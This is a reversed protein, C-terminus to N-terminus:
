SAIIPMRRNRRGVHKNGFIKAFWGNKKEVFFYGSTLGIVIGSGFGMAVARWGFEFVSDSGESDEKGPTTPIEGEFQNRSLDIAVLFEQIKEFYTETGKNNIVMSLSFTYPWLSLGVLFSMSVELYKLQEAGYTKMSNWKRFYESPLKGTFSNDSLDVIQLMPFEEGSAKPGQLPGWFRNSGLILVRLNTLFGLWHPFIDNIHNGRLNLYELMTCNVLSKPVKGSLQNQSFDIMRLNCAELFTQPIEGHFKNNELSLFLPSNKMNGLCQPIKGSLDNFSLDLSFVSSLNCFSTGIEGTLKNHYVDYVLVSPPPIPLPGQLLNFSLSLVLLNTWPLVIPLFKSEFRTLFNSELNLYTLSERSINFMWEPVKGHIKNDPMLLAELGDQQQLFSPFKQLNCSSLDLLQLQPRNNVNLSTNSNEIMLFNNGALFLETLSQLGNLNVRGSLHNYRLHLYQLHVLRSISEPISGYLKNGELNLITLQTLNGIWSPIKAALQNNLLDLGTLRTLNKLSFPFDGHLNLNNLALSSLQKLKGLWVMKGPNLNNESLALLTLNTLKALSSPIKGSFKNAVLSLVNLNTLNGLSSPISGSFQCGDMILVTLFKLKEISRPLVGSFSTEYLILEELQSGNPFDLISGKLDPNIALNLFSLKSLHFVETPFEGLLGCEGLFLSTLSTLNALSQPVFGSINVQSLNLVELLNLKKVLNRFNPKHLKLFNRSLDLSVLRSLELIETPVQASFASLSLNLYKLSSLNRFGAPIIIRLSEKFQMLASCENNQCPHQTSAFSCTLIFVSILFLFNIFKLSSDM